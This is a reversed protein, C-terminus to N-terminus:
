RGREGQHMLCGTDLPTTWHEQESRRVWLNRQKFFSGDGLLIALQQTMRRKPDRVQRNRQLALRSRSLIRHQEATESAYKSNVKALREFLRAAAYPKEAEAYAFALRGFVEKDDPAVLHAEELIPLAEEPSGANRMADAVLLSAFANLKSSRLYRRGVEVATRFLGYRAHLLTMDRLLTREGPYRDLANVLIRRTASPEGVALETCSLLLHYGKMKGGVSVAKRLAALAESYKKQHYLAQGM